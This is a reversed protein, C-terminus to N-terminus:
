AFHELHGDMCKCLNEETKFIINLYIVKFVENM